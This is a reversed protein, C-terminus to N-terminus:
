SNTFSFLSTGIEIGADIAEKKSTFGCDVYFTKAPYAKNREDTNM